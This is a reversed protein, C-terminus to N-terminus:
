FSLSRKLAFDEALDFIGRLIEELTRRIAEDTSLSREIWYALILFIRTRLLSERALGYVAPFAELFV